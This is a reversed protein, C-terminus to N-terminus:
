RAGRFATAHFIVEVTVTRADQFIRESVYPTKRGALFIERVLFDRPAGPFKKLLGLGLRNGADKRPM